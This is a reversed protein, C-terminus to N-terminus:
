ALFIKNDAESLSNIVKMINCENLCRTAVREINNIENLDCFDYITCLERSVILDFLIRYKRVAYKRLESYKYYPNDTKEIPLM